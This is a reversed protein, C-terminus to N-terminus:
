TASSTSASTPSSVEGEVVVDDLLRQLPQAIAKVLMDQQRFARGMQADNPLAAVDQRQEVAFAQGEQGPVHQGQRNAVDGHLRQGSPNQIFQAAGWGQGAQVDGTPQDPNGGAGPLPRPRLTGGGRLLSLRM